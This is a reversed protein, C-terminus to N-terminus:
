NFGGIKDLTTLMKKSKLENLLDPFNRLSVFALPFDKKSKQLVDENDLRLYRVTTALNQHRTFNTNGKPQYRTTLM